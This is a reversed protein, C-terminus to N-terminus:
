PFYILSINKYIWIIGFGQSNQCSEVVDEPNNNLPPNPQRTTVSAPLRSHKEPGAPHPESLKNSNDPPSTLRGLRELIQAPGRGWPGCPSGRAGLKGHLVWKPLTDYPPPPPAGMGGPSDLKPAARPGKELSIRRPPGLPCGLGPTDAKPGACPFAGTRWPDSLGPRPRLTGLPAM